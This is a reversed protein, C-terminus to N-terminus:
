SAPPAPSAPSEAGAEVAEKAVVDAAQEAAREESRSPPVYGCASLEVTLLSEAHKKAEFAVGGGRIGFLRKTVLLYVVAAVNITFTCAALVVSKGEHLKTYGDWIELPLFISTGVATLYEGWRKALWLGVGEVTELLAYALLLMAVTHISHPNYHFFRRIRLVIPMTELDSGYHRAVPDLFSLNKNFLDQLSDLHTGFEWVGWAVLAIVAGRVLREVALVRLIFHDRLAKGRLVEPAENAAGSAKAPGPV